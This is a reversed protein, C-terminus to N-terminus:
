FHTSISRVVAPKVQPVSTQPTVVSSAISTLSAETHTSTSSSFGSESAPPAMNNVPQVQVLFQRRLLPASGQIQQRHELQEHALLHELPGHQEPFLWVLRVDACGASETGSKAAGDGRCDPSSCPGSDSYDGDVSYGLCSTSDFKSSTWVQFRSPKGTATSFSQVSTSSALTTPVPESPLQGEVSRTM